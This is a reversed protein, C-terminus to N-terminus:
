GAVLRVGPLADVGLMGLVHAVPPLPDVLLVRGGAARFPATAHVLARCAAVDMFRLSTLDLRVAREDGAGAVLASVAAALLEATSLDVEGALTLTTGTRSTALMPSRVGDAHLALASALRDRRGARSDDRAFRCLASVPRSRCLETLGEELGTRRRSGPALALRVGPYGEDLAHEVALELDAPWTFREWPVAELRGDAAARTDVGHAALGDLLGDRGERGAACVVKEGLELGHTAWAALERYGAAEHPTVLLLHGDWGVRRRRLRM